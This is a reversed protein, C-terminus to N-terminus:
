ELPKLEGLLTPVLESVTPHIHMARRIVTYPAKAYMIDLLSHIVEDCEVGLLSAGLILESEADVLVKMFGQTEGKEVARGVRTMPRTGILAKRGSKRAGSESMGCRGLPPDIYLNYAPIRDSVRRPDNDLLNAAVIEFDNYSTHTFAGRGNCDGMAWIGPVNTRLQDDVQIYGRNDVAVGARELGLDNTNPVRGAAILVHSGEVEREEGAISIKCVIQEGRRAVEHVDASTLIQIGEGELIKRIAECIDPDENSILCGGRQLITVEAGFRRYMQGFELGVYGGGVIVLHRPLFDVAMMSSNTLFSIADLGPIAPKAARGGVNIFIKGADLVEDGVRVTRPSEFRAHGQYVTCNNMGRLWNELGQNSAAVIGDKRAKVAHMDVSIEGTRFGYDAARRAMHIAKASAVLAKTPVCGTNVCTGGFLKREIIAVRMGAATLRGALPPGSQGTGIIIADFSNAMETDDCHVAHVNNFIDRILFWTLGGHPTEQVPRIAVHGSSKHQGMARTGVAARRQQDRHRFPERSSSNGHQPAIKGEALCARVTRGEPVTRLIAHPQPARHLHQTFDHGAARKEAAMGITATLGAHQCGFIRRKGGAQQQKRIRQMWGFLGLLQAGGMKGLQLRRGEEDM